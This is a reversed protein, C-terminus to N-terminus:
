NAFLFGNDWAEKEINFPESLPVVGSDVIKCDKVPSSGSVETEEVMKVVDQLFNDFTWYLHRM